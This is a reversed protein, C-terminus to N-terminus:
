KEQLYEPYLNELKFKIKNWVKRNKATVKISMFIAICEKIRLYCINENLNEILYGFADLFDDDSHEKLIQFIKETPERLYEEKHNRLYEFEMKLAKKFLKKHENYKTSDTLTIELTRYLDKFVQQDYRKFLLKWYKEIEAFSNTNNKKDNEAIQWFEWALARRFNDDKQCLYTLEEEFYKFDFPIEKYQNKRYVAFYVFLFCAKSIKHSEFFSLVEKAEDTTLDRIYYFVDVLHEVLSIPNAEGSKIQKDTIKLIKFAIEKVSNSVEKRLLKRRGPPSLEILPVLAQQRVYLDPESYRLKKALIGDLDLLVKTKEFAYEMLEPVNTIIFKQLVWCLTGRVSTILITSEGNKIKIHYNFESKEDTNPDPDDICLEVIHKAEEYHKVKILEEALSVISIRAYSNNQFTKWFTEKNQLYPKLLNYTKVPDHQSLDRIPQALFELVKKSPTKNKLFAEIIRKGREKNNQWDRKILGSILGSKEWVVDDNISNLYREFDMNNFIEMIFDPDTEPIGHAVIQEFSDYRWDYYKFFDPKKILYIYFEKAPKYGLKILKILTSIVFLNTPYGGPYNRRKYKITDIQILQMIRDFGIKNLDSKCLEYFIIESTSPIGDKMWLINKLYEFAERQQQNGIHKNQLRELLIPILARKLYVPNQKTARKPAKNLIKHKFFQWAEQPNEKYLALFLPQFLFRVVGKDTISYTSGAQSIGSGVWEYGRYKGNYYVDFQESIKRVVYSFNKELNEKIFDKVFSYIIPHTEVVNEFDDSTFDFFEFIFDIFDKKNKTRGFLIKLIESVQENERWNRKSREFRKKQNKNVPQLIEKKLFTIIEQDFRGEIDKQAIDKLIRLAEDYGIDYSLRKYNNTAFDILYETSVKNQMWKKKLIRLALRVYYQKLLVKEILFRFDDVLFDRKELEDCLYFILRPHITLQSLYTRHNLEKLKQPTALFDKINLIRNGISFEPNFETPCDAIRKEFLNLKERFEEKTITGGEKGKEIIEKFFQAVISKQDMPDLYFPYEYAFYESIQQHINEIRGFEFIEVRKALFLIEDESWKKDLFKKVITDKNLREHEIWFIYDRIYEYYEKFKNDLRRVVIRFKDKEGYQKNIKKAIIKKISSFSLPIRHSKVEYDENYTDFVLTFDEWEEGEVIIKQFDARKSAKLLYFLAIDAQDSIGTFTYQGAKSM